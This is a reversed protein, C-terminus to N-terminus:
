KAGRQKLERTHLKKTRGVDLIQSVVTVLSDAEDPLTFDFPENPTDDSLTYTGTLHEYDDGCSYFECNCGNDLFFNIHGDGFDLNIDTNKFLKTLERRKM